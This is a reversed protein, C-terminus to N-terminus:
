SPLPPPNITAIGAKQCRKELIQTVGSETLRGRVGLWLYPSDAHSHGDRERMYRILARMAKPGLPLIRERRGKGLVLFERRNLDVDELKTGVLEGVRAGANLM